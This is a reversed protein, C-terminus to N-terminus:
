LTKEKGKARETDAKGIGAAKAKFAELKEKLSTRQVPKDAMAAAIKLGQPSGNGVTHEHGANEIPYPMPTNAAKEGVEPKESINEEQGQKQVDHGSTEQGENEEEPADDMGIADDGKEDMNLLANLASLRELKEALEAEQAFPKTVEVKATELQREVTELKTQAEALQKPMSELAHNIRAINGLPDSGIELNHSLQGKLNMVFKHNFSDFSVAMKFGAYEGVTAPVNVTKTEKCMEVLATGAEKKDTYVKDGVKMVFQEKDAPLNAKATQIDATMGSIREKLIAIQQPYRKLIDDELRYKQSTHNGKMIKLKSVQIDLDMKEKIYPNGTALAKVEAYTLAAEDVDECSRVPSKSTMIQGIFKQKNEILQWSYSDFTGETVYRFIKVKPNLNGQRLIRGEQQEIDSPRWPVDLHHLAILRDQVNTGAGMKQTSGLLFRVQGSRVKGFLEAKRLETNAEHIFAIEEPPVGKEVLKNKIDEYVNFTGDGKPTSLDCFILQTSKQEKTQEWIEFAKGVCTAAKSDESDPLMDNILRQDLALKRGDNTIKLMNDRSPDVKRDRVAEARDALSSVMDQQYESPKLVVNEYEAEPVPLNLMDPTQIDASEKFLAILEPLNFFKAFRTKARYGTGEPALEIATQTEGFSSAWSDFHGLGLKQLTGYQLYRMNTYLETMSNSIPTGTAFTVGKGGTIEDLYQCKAFMDSSKQAETQAIGAVNRMKTYLFLNKYNHSEDVFLRDVGLQEFTVVNDKRTADNLKELRAALSKRTKEMQKITYREGNDAKAQEIALEIESIQREIMAEQREISLPIKEFQSHGIIVADYDGTAIRSCFKKRNAPEFDKKTAALINAGPYLRLFDSAWQETLHNPVVFLSKQCLGLRKSEMAAATMEFTKGAGVCHALLTNDGYLVHAVANKQHPKLEIDPTMGPFKLHAGDYERPRTSNFLKNYKAVLDQRRDPDRFVWDKFAERITDQKQAALTTEKKNLVRKEKGEEMITDYVRSDKLNLSDELIQYANRRSTGYTMNVLSNGNDANKGKVNWQGTVGSFQIGVVNREFLHPPTEFIDRMFDELYEPKVWTAGIRVEIESADLEKPQVQTLAQVNVTYEPHNEAYVKATELKDRVNGSLYEDATEWKDTVPNQFIIGTLEEKITDISKGSLEAMYDLDVRAKESLSVALAETATDVSTVVEAKKITRKTFMDAKGVFKGEEDTKELSCLLCYSSDQNFARKNTQSNILGYKKSFADYLSNLEAQKELIVTDPYEELQVNILEQTCDRIAIMGKIRELMSDKMDVPKMVSNERYYVKDDVVCFSYNKVYPDAPITQDAFEDELEDLEVEEFEGDICSVAEKLQEAFPRTTDPQCTSEMGYPGSVMEMKGVIMEPHEAFYSNMAIGNEDESLHVWDPELDMVRDRKKLFLIDSTVETGANEKFATNPLRVAGLLEARQALYKRVEPSKKDMTGKSTVFAVVGGPRVKDLTKAFFYDHILFNNKDYQRDAVKYQGFPVNGVAVDFFDNPYDTKEFGSIKINAKPYLQKAIRGTIGDLEVGYLRSEQMKEPLMGFFNGIGMAPELVNGKEFGMKELAEYISRIIVPSTYHANLTSERASAYETESLLSKLEQYEVSWASKSEDFADALGGWGVYQSLIKQEEPTAIRNESEIKELTRVAEVNRRFKEKAGGIGLADDTIHFNVAKSKDIKPEAQKAPSKGEPEPLTNETERALLREFNERSEARFIPYFLALDRLQVERDSINEIIFETGEITVTDGVKYDPKEPEAKGLEERKQVDHGSTEQEPASLEREKQSFDKWVRESVAPFEPSEDEMIEYELEKLDELSETGAIKERYRFYVAERSLIGELRELEPEPMREWIDDKETHITFGEGDDHYELTYQLSDHEGRIDCEFDYVTTRSAAFYERNILVLNKIDDAALPKEDADIGPFDDSGEFRSFVQAEHRDIDRMAELDIFDDEVEERDPKHDYEFHTDRNVEAYFFDSDEVSNGLVYKNDGAKWEDTKVCEQGDISITDESKQVHHGSTEEQAQERKHESQRRMSGYVMEDYGIVDILDAHNDIYEQALERNIFFRNHEPYPVLLGDEAMTVLRYRVGERGDAYQHTYFGIAPESFDESSELAVTIREVDVVGTLELSYEEGSEKAGDLTESVSVPSADTNYTDYLAYGETEKDIWLFEGNPLKASWETPQGNDDDMEHVINWVLEGGYVDAIDNQEPEQTREAKAQAALEKEHRIYRRTQNIFGNLVAPHSAAVIDRSEYMAYPEISMAWEKNEPSIREEQRRHMITNALVYSVREIGYEKIVGEATGKPLRYGDFNEAIARDIADKCSVKTDREIKAQAKELEKQAEEEKYEAYAEKGKPSLYKDEQILKRIRKEVVKWSLLVDAYPESIDGKRLRIGKSDHDDWSHDNGALAHSGGGIGYEKKLFAVAEKSDHGEMFYDYIRFSGYRYGSGGGLRHDIEDQTIFDEKKVEVHDSVPFTKKELLLNDLEARLEEKSVVSRFRLKKEGSELQGIAKDMHSAAMDVGEPTSLIDVLRAHSDPYNAAKMELEEPMEGMGDRFFFYLHSAIRGREAEDVLYAENAGMYTGNEVQSRIVAEIEQWSMTFRPNELASTGYGATMGQENFWVSVQKGDFEFGKGTTGYEKKLFEAMEEPTKGQQYKAYIRKRSNDRGGGSQLITDLQEKPLAEKQPEPDIKEAPIVGQEAEKVAISGVQESFLSFLDLQQYMGNTDIQEAKEGPLLYVDDEIYSNVLFRADEWSILAENEVGPKGSMNFHIGEENAYFGVPIGAAEYGYYINFHFCNKFYEAQLKTDQELAFYGAIEPRKHILFSDSCLIGKQVKMAKEAFDPNDLFSGSLSDEGNDPEEAEKNQQEESSLPQVGAGDARDGGSLEQHQEDEGGMEDSRVSEASRGSGRSEGDARDPLGDAGRGTETDGSLARETKGDDAAWQLDGEPTGESLEEADARVQDATGGARQGAGPETDSLGREERIDTGHAIGETEIHNTTTETQPENESERKLANYRPDLINALVKEPNKENTDTQVANAKEKAKDVAKQRAIQRDYAAVTKGIEMLLPKCMDTTANGVVSLAMATNFESIYDFNLDDKWLDMDAGCRSLLTYAISASLTERLRLGVNLEDLEELFSGEKSYLMDPLLETYYDEAIRRAIEMLRGEFSNKKDTAGYTKELQALVVDKHEERIEWLYPDKGIRRSKHVDSVDFVYKLRPRESGRDFLAIGKAGRNVWCFMKENWIEMTACAKADPRQAYILMQDEFPYKYLRAATTLYKAWEKGNKSVRGATEGALMSIEHYKKSVLYEGAM